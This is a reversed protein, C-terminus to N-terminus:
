NVEPRTERDFFRCYKDGPNRDCYDEIKNQRLSDNKVDSYNQPLLDACDPDGIYTKVKVEGTLDNKGVDVGPIAHQNCVATQLFLAYVLVPIILIM